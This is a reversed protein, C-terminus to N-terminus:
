SVQRLLQKFDQIFELFEMLGGSKKIFEAVQHEDDLNYLRIKVNLGEYQAM